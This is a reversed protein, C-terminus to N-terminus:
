GRPHVNEPKSVSVIRALVTAWSTKPWNADDFRVETVAEFRIEEGTKQAYYNVTEFAASIRAQSRYFYSAGIEVVDYGEQVCEPTVRVRYGNSKMLDDNEIRFARNVKQAIKMAPTKETM